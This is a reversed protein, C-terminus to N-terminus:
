KLKGLELILEEQGTWLHANEQAYVIAESEDGYGIYDFAQAPIHKTGQLYDKVYPNQKNANKLLRRTKSSLGNTFYSLLANNFLFNATEDEEFQKILKSAHEYLELEIYISLLLYRIGQNDNPNLELLEEYHKLAEQIFGSEELSTAYTAKARMYPRTEIMMWFHGKNEKFFVEGLDKEGAKVAKELLRGQEKASNADEALLLYADPSNPNIKLAEEILKRRKAGYTEQAEYLMDQAIDTNSKSKSYTTNDLHLSGNQMMNKMFDNAEEISDFNQENLLNQLERMTQESNLPGPINSTNFDDNHYSEEFQQDDILYDLDDALEDLLRRYYSSITNANTEYEKALQSQTISTSEFLETQVLYELAAAFPGRKKVTPNKRECYVHWLMIGCSIVEFSFGKSEMHQRFLEAVMEHVPNDWQIIGKDIMLVEGLFNPFEDILEDKNNSYSHYLEIVEDLRDVPIEIMIFFFDHLQIYPILLGIVFNGKTYTAEENSSIQYYENSIIDRITTEKRPEDSSIIEYIAPKAKAWESLTNKTRTHKIKAQQKQYFLEFITQNNNFPELFVAWSTIGRIYIDSLEEDMGLFPQYYKELLEMLEKEFKEMSFSILEQHLRELEINYIEPNFEIVNSAGCCKKYKKGSGCPCPDNRRPKSM